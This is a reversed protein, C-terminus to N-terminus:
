TLEKVEPDLAELIAIMENCLVSVAADLALMQRWLAVLDQPVSAEEVDALMDRLGREVDGDGRATARTAMALPTMRAPRRLPVVQGTVSM